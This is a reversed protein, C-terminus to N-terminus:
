DSGASGTAMVKDTMTYAVMGNVLLHSASPFTYAAALVALFKLSFSESTYAICDHIKTDDPYCPDM